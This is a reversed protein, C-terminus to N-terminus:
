AAAAPKAFAPRGRKEWDARMEQYLAEGGEEQRLDHREKPTMEEYRKGDHTLASALPAPQGPNASTAATAAPTAADTVAGKIDHPAAALFARLTAIPTEETPKGDAGPAGDKEAWAKMAPTLQRNKVGERVLETRESKKTKGELEKLTARSAELEAGTAKLAVVKGIAADGTAGIEAELKDLTRSRDTQKQAAKIVDEESSDVAICLIACLSALLKMDTTGEINDDDTSGSPRDWPARMGFERYHQALHNKVGPLDSAPMSTGGRSGSVANGAAIVGARVTVLRGNQVDHHPLKYAGVTEHNKADVWAFAYEYREWDIKAADGSGDSSAWKRIRQEAAAGDWGGTKDLPYKKFPIAADEVSDEIHEDDLEDNLRALLERGRDDFADPDWEAAIKVAPTVTDAYGLRKAEKATMYTTADMAKSVDSPKQGSRTSLIDVIQGKVQDLLDATARMDKSEGVKASWPNHIMMMTNSPMIIEDGVMALTAAASAAVGDVTVIKRAPHENLVNFIAHGEFVDGGGSNIRLHITNVDGADKLQQAVRKATVGDEFFGRGIRDHVHISASKSSADCVVDFVWAARKM